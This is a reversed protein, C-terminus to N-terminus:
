AARGRTSDEREGSHAHPDPPQGSLEAGHRAEGTDGPRELLGALQAALALERNKRRRVALASIGKAILAIGLYYSLVVEWTYRPVDIAAIPLASFFSVADFLLRVIAQFFLVGYEGGPLYSLLPVVCGLAQICLILPVLLCNVIPSLISLRGFFAALIPAVAIQAAFSIGLSSCIFPPLRLARLSATIPAALWLIGATAAFSLLFGASRILSPSFTLLISAVIILIDRPSTRARFWSLAAFVYIAFVARLV